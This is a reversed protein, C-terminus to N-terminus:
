TEQSSHRLVVGNLDELFRVALLEGDLDGYRHRAQEYTREVADAIPLNLAFQRAMDGVAELEECCRAFSFAPLYDGELLAVADREAFRSAASSTALGSRLVELDIGARNAVMLAEATALAQGFWLLNVLLKTTCGAGSSGAHVIGDAAALVALVAWSSELVAGDGGVFIQLTGTEAAAPGGGLPADLASVGLARAQEAMAEALAPPCTTMDIWTAGQRLARLAGVAGVMVDEVEAAGPLVTLLIDVEAAVARASRKWRAGRSEALQAVENRRDHVVVRYGAGLLNRCVPWGMRGLGVVGLVPEQVM